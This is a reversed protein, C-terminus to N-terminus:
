SVLQRSIEQEKIFRGVEQACREPIVFQCQARVGSFTVLRAQPMLNCFHQAEQLTLIRTCEAGQMMLTPVNISSLFKEVNVECNAAARFYGKTAEKQCNWVEANTWEALARNEPGFELILQDKWKKDEVGWAPRNETGGAQVIPHHKFSPGPATVLTLTKLRERYHYAFHYGLLGGLSEGVLHVKGMGLMDLFNKLDSVLGEVTWQYGEPAPTSDWHGRLHPRIVEFRRALTPIWAYFIQRPKRNGHLLVITDPTTWPDTCDDVYYGMELTDDVRVKKVFEVAVFTEKRSSSFNVKRGTSGIYEEIRVCELSHVMKEPLLALSGVESRSEPM